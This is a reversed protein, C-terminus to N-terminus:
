PYVEVGDPGGELLDVRRMEGVLWNKLVGGHGDAEDKGHGTVELMQDITVNLRYALECMLYFAKVCKYQKACGDAKLWVTGGAVM